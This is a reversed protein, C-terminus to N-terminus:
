EMILESMDTYVSLGNQELCRRFYEALINGELSHALASYNQPFSHVFPPSAKGQTLCVGAM